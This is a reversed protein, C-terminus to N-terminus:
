SGAGEWCSSVKFLAKIVGGASLGGPVHPSASTHFPLISLSYM